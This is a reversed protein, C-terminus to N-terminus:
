PVTSPSISADRTSALTRELEVIRSGCDCEGGEGAVGKKHPQRSATTYFYTKGSFQNETLSFIKPFDYERSFLRRSDIKRSSRNKYLEDRSHKPPPATAVPGLAMEHEEFNERSVFVARHGGAANEKDEAEEGEGNLLTKLKATERQVEALVVQLLNFIETIQTM